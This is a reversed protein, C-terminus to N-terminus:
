LEDAFRGKTALYFAHGPVYVALALAAFVAITSGQLPGQLDDYTPVLAHHYIEMLHYMPNFKMLWAYEAIKADELLSSPYVIPTTFFWLQLVLGIIQSTDRIFINLAGLFLGIGVTFIAQLPVAVLLLWANTPFGFFITVAVLYVVLAILFYVLNVVVAYIPLLQSPFAIKKVLNGNELVVGTCRMLGESYAIWPLIGSIIYLGYLGNQQAESFGTDMEKDSLKAGLILAFVLYYLAFLILPNLVPWLRGLLSGEYRAKLDRWVFSGLLERHRLVVAPLTFM